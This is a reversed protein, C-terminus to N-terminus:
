DAGAAFVDLSNLGRYKSRRAASIENGKEAMRLM